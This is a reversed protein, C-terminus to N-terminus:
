SNNVTRLFYCKKQDSISKLSFGAKELSKISAVNEPLTYAIVKSNQWYNNIEKMAMRLMKSALGKGRSHPAILYNLVVENSDKELRVLGAPLHDKEFIWMIVNSDKYKKNFWIKHEDITIPDKNFSWNRVDPDNIWNFLIDKDNNSVKRLTLLYNPNDM